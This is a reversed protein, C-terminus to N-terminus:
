VILMSDGFSYFSYKEGIAVEYLQVLNRKAGKDQLFADVLLMLSSKPIHFNTILIDPIHFHHPPTIFIDTEGRYLRLRSKSAPSGLTTSSEIARLATTGVAIIKPASDSKSTRSGLLANVKDVTIQPIDIYEHHLKKQEFNGDKLKAFTGLGVDLTVPVSVISKKRLSEFVAETFHLAATPAAVSRGRAAFITQYRKRLKEEDRSWEEDQLYPPIPTEGYEELLESLSKVPTSGSNSRKLLAYFRNEEQRVMEFYQGNPFFLRWGVGCKRDVMVPIEKSEGDWENMLVFVEIKGGTAKKLHLRAPVVRTDNMVLLSHEPLYKALNSFVDHAITDTKTDYVFLRASDRPELGEKRILGEPLEYDYRDLDSLNM